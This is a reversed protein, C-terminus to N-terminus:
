KRWPNISRIMAKLRRGGRRLRTNQKTRDSKIEAIIEDKMKDIAAYLDVRVATARYHRRAAHVNIEALFVEGNHHHHTTKGLEVDVMLSEDGLNLFRELHALKEGLYNRIAGTLEIGTAKLNTKM